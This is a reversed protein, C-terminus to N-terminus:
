SNLLLIIAYAGGSLALVTVVLAVWALVKRTRVATPSFVSGEDDSM